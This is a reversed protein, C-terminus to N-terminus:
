MGKPKSSYKKPNVGQQEDLGDLVVLTRLSDVAVNIHDELAKTQNETYNGTFHIDAIASALTTSEAM